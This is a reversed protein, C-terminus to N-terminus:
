DKKTKFLFLEGLRDTKRRLVLGAGTKTLSGELPDQTDRDYFMRVYRTAGKDLRYEVSINDIISAASNQADEGTSVKGGVIVSVRNGWFRKSFQFSYDTTSTGAASTGSEVGLNIDITRLASGAINQIESQLFANLANNAKFGGGSAMNEDTIYMGTALMAVASKGRQERTMAALQNQVSLDEPAEITFELGMEELPQTIAVGVDFAVSRSQENETVVAKVREKAAINLTPNMVDGTFEVYSGQVLTFTKLPIVPLSYKMEGSNVTFRGTLRMDGQQTLRMTLDGGGELDVYNQGDESLDCHFQAADSISIGLSLDFNAVPTPPEETLLSDEFSVFQVLSKLRDDVSLPSDKLIYTMDTRDLVELKGRVSLNDTTGRLTGIFNTYVKGFVMSKAKKKTNILEFNDARMKFDLGIRAFDSMDLVGNMVLPSKGTSYLSYDEFTMRSGEIRVPREDMRFDFGYVESFIHASDLEFTGDLVPKELSGSLSLNGGAYGNLAVDTGALFGNLMQLPFDHLSAEGEFRGGDQDYYTGECELVDTGNSSVFANAHHEGGEKPLYIAELGVNGLAVDEFTLGNTAISAMASLSKHDDTVHVDGSLMGGLRPLYPMVNSLEALNLRNVSVTIDNTSDVSEGYVKLGTGDDALLDLDARISRDRGLYIFNDQNVKFNRYAIVPHEPYLKVSLGGPVIEARLGFDIGKEGESDFFQAEVGAGSSLLYSKLRTEFKNPNRKTYNKALAEMVVGTTDQRIDMDITDILLGGSKLAGVRVDGNLGNTHDTNLNIYASNYDYGKFRLINSMPNDRGADLFFSVAPLQEKLALQDLQKDDLQRQLLDTFKGIQETLREITGQAELRLSLDGAAVKARTTDPSAAFFFNIDKAPLSKRPTLFRIDAISGQAEYDTFSRDTRAAIDVNTGLQLTDKLGGLRTIDIVPLEATLRLAIDKGLDAEITGNGQILENSSSFHATGKGHKLDADFRIGGFDWKDYRFAEVAAKAQLAARPSLVDFSSGAAELRGSFGGLGAGPLFSGIPFSRATAAVRYTERRLDTRAKATLSGGGAGLRLDAEYRDGEFAATGRATIGRPLAVGEPLLGRLFSLDGTRLDFTAKGSRADTLVSRVSAEGRLDLVGPLACRLSGVSLRDVNGAVSAKLELPKRPYLKLYEKGVFGGALAAVDEHGISADLLLKCAGGRGEKLAQWEVETGVDIRSHATLLNFAPLRLRATDMYIAGSLNKLELGCRERFTVRGVGARLTGLSDYSLTDVRLALGYLEIRAPDFAPAPAPLAPPLQRHWDFFPSAQEGATEMGLWGDRLTLRHLAYFARGTDFRGSDLVAQGIRAALRMTDGPMSLRLATKSIEARALLIDWKSTSPTTDKQATDGLAVWLDGGSVKARDLHVREASWEVGHAEASLEGVRGRVETDPILGKTNLRADYLAFGDVDARGKFLPLLRVNLRLARANVLTDGEADTALMDQLALDLPFALRVYGIEVRLGTAEAILGTAQKVAFRQVPPLYLLMALLLFLAVPCALAIGTWKLIKKVRKKGKM